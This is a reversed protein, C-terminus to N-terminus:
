IVRFAAIPRDFVSGDLEALIYAGGRNRSIVILPQPGLYRPRMKRNLAKKIATNQVLVLDGLRFDFQKITHSHEKKFRDAAQIRKDSHQFSNVDNKYLLQVAYSSSPLHFQHIRPRCFIIPKPSTSQYYLILGRRPLTLHADWGEASLLEKSGFYQLLPLRGNPSTVTALRSYLKELM